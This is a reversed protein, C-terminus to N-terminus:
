SARIANGNPFGTADATESLQYSRFLLIFIMAHTCFLLPVALTPIFWAAGLSAPQIGVGIVGNYFALTLDGFGWVNFVWLAARFYRSTRAALALWALIMAGLDGYAAPVAFASELHSGVVGPVFFALGVFRFLHLYLLPQAAKYLPLQGIRPWVYTRCVAAWAILALLISAAFPLLQSLDRAPLM